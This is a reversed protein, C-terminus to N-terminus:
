RSNPARAARSSCSWGPFRSVWSASVEVVVVRGDPVCGGPMCGGPLLDAVAWGGAIPGAMVWGAKGPRTTVGLGPGDTGEARRGVVGLGAAGIDGKEVDCFAEARRFVSDDLM